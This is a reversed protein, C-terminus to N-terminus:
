TCKSLPTEDGGVQFSGSLVNAPAKDDGPQSGGAYVVYQGPEIVEAYDSERVVQIICEMIIVYPHSHLTSVTMQSPSIEVKVTRDEGAKMDSEREFNM